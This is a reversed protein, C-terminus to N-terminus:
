KSPSPQFGATPASFYSHYTILAASCSEPGLIKAWPKLRPVVVFHLDILVTEVTKGSGQQQNILCILVFDVLMFFPAGM